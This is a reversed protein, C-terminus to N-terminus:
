ADLAQEQTLKGEELAQEITGKMAEARATDMFDQLEELDRGQSEAVEALNKGAHLESFLGEPSLGLFEAAADFAGWSCGCLGCGAGRFGLQAAPEAAGEQALSPVVLAGALLVVTLAAGVLIILKKSMQSLKKGLTTPSTSESDMEIM